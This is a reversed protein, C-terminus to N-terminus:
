FSLGASLSHVPCRRPLHDRCAQALLGAREAESTALTLVANTFYRLQSFHNDLLAKDGAVWQVKRYSTRPVLKM